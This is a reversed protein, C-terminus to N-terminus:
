LLENRKGQEKKHRLMQYFKGYFDDVKETNLSSTLPINVDYLDLAWKSVAEMALNSPLTEDIGTKAIADKWEAVAMKAFNALYLLDTNTVNINELQLIDVAEETVETAIKASEENAVFEQGANSVEMERM